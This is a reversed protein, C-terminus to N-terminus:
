RTIFTAIIVTSSLISLVAALTQFGTTGTGLARIPLPEVYILDNPQIYYYPSSIIKEDLLNVKHIKTGEPYQRMITISERKALETLDGANALAEFITMRNQLVMFKGPRKVEGLVSYRLGGLRVTTYVNTLYENFTNQVTENAQFINQGELNIKGVFPVAVFGSDDLTFGTLYYFDGGGQAGAQAANNQAQQFINQILPNDNMLKVDIGIIDGKQLLYNNLQVQYLTDAQKNADQLYIIKKNPVCSHLTVLLLLLFPHLIKKSLLTTNQAFIPNILELNM